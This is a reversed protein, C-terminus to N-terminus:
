GMMGKVPEANANVIGDSELSSATASSSSRKALLRTSTETEKSSRGTDYRQRGDNKQLCNRSRLKLKRAPTTPM